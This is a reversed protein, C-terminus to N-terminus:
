KDSKIANLPQPSLQTRKEAAPLFAVDLQLRATFGTLFFVCMQKGFFHLPM